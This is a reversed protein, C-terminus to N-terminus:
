GVWRWGWDAVMKHDKQHALHCSGSLAGTNERKPSGSPVYLHEEYMWAPGIPCLPVHSYPRKRFALEWFLFVTQCRRLTFEPFLRTQNDLTLEQRQARSLLAAPFDDRRPSDLRIQGRVKHLAIGESHLPRGFGTPHLIELFNVFGIPESQILRSLFNELSM